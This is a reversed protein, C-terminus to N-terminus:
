SLCYATNSYKRCEGSVFFYMKVWKFDCIGPCLKSDESQWKISSSPMNMDLSLLCISFMHELQLLYTPKGTYCNITIIEFLNNMELTLERFLLDMRMRKQCASTYFM